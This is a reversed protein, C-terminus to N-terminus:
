CLNGVMIGLVDIEMNFKIHFVNAMGRLIVM